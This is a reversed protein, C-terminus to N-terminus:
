GPNLSGQLRDESGRYIRWDLGSSWNCPAIPRHPVPQCFCGSCQLDIWFGHIKRALSLAYGISMKLSDEAGRKNVTIGVARDM